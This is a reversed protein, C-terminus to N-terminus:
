HTNSQHKELLNIVDSYISALSPDAEKYQNYFSHALDLANCGAYVGSDLMQSIDAGKNLLFAILNINPKRPMNFAGRSHTILTYYPILAKILLENSNTIEQINLAFGEMLEFLYKLQALDNISDALISQNQSPENPKVLAEFEEKNFNIISGLVRLTGVFNNNWGCMKRFQELWFERPLVELHDILALIHHRHSSVAEKAYKKLQSQEHNTFKTKKHVPHGDLTNTSTDSEKDLVKVMLANIENLFSEFCIIHTMYDLALIFTNLHVSQADILKYWLTKTQKILKKIESEKFDLNYEDFLNQDGRKKLELDSIELETLDDIIGIKLEKNTPDLFKISSFIASGKKELWQNM